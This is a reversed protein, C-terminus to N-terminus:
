IIGPSLQLFKVRSSQLQITDSVYLNSINQLFNSEKLVIVKKEQKSIGNKDTYVHWYSLEHDSIKNSAKRLIQASGTNTNRLGYFLQHLPYSDSFISIVSLYLCFIVIM